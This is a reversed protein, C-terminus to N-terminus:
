ILITQISLQAEVVEWPISTTTAMTTMMMLVAWQHLHHLDDEAVAWARLDWRLVWRAVPDWQVVPDVPDVPDV